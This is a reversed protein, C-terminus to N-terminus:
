VALMSFWLASKSAKKTKKKRTPLPKATGTHSLQYVLLTRMHSFTKTGLRPGDRPMIILSQSLLWDPTSM